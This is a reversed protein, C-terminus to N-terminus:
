KGHMKFGEGLVEHANNAIMFAKPDVSFVINRLRITELRNVVCLLVTRDQGSYM